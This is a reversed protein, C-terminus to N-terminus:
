IDNENVSNNIFSIKKIKDLKDTLTVDQSAEIKQLAKGETRDFVMEIAKLDGSLAKQMLIFSIATKFDKKTELKLKKVRSKGDESTM